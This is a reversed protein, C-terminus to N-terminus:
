PLIAKLWTIYHTAGGAELCLGMRVSMQSGHSMQLAGEPFESSVARSSERGRPCILVM